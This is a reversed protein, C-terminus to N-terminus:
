SVSARLARVGEAPGGPHAFVASGAVLVNAGADVVLPATDPGVGGDVQIHVDERGAIMLQDRATRIKETSSPIFIQGGFGPNVTMVLVLEVYPLVDRLTSVPTSPNL